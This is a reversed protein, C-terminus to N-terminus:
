TGDSIKAISKRQVDSLSYLFPTLLDNVSKLGDMVQQKVEDPITISIKNELAMPNDGRKISHFINKIIQTFVNGHYTLNIKIALHLPFNKRSIKTKFLINLSRFFKRCDKM